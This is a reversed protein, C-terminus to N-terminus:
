KLQNPFLPITTASKRIPESMVMWCILCDPILLKVKPIINHTIVPILENNMKICYIIGLMQIKRTIISELRIFPIVPKPNAKNEKGSSSIQYEGLSIIGTKIIQLKIADM